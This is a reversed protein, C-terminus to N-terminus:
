GKNVGGGSLQESAQTGVWPQTSLTQCGEWMWRNLAYTSSQRPTPGEEGEEGARKKTGVFILKWWPQSLM